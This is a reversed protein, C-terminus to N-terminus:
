NGMAGARDAVQPPAGMPEAEGPASGARWGKRKVAADPAGSVGDRGPPAAPYRPHPQAPATPSPGAPSAARGAARDDRSGFLLNKDGPPRRVM